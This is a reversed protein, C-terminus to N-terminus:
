YLLYARLASVRKLKLRIMHLVATVPGWRGVDFTCYPPWCHPFHLYKLIVFYLVKLLPKMSACKCLSLCTFGRANILVIMRSTQFKLHWRRCCLLQCKIFHKVSENLLAEQVTRGGGECCGILGSSQSHRRVEDGPEGGLWSWYQKQLWGKRMIKVQNEHGKMWRRWTLFWVHGRLCEM